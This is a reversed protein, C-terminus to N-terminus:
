LLSQDKTTKNDSQGLMLKAPKMYREDMFKELAARDGGAAVREEIKATLYKVGDGGVETVADTWKYSADAAKKKDFLERVVADTVLKTLPDRTQRKAGTGDGVKRLEGKYLRERAAAATGTLDAVPREGTPKAVATQMPDSACAAEYAAFPELAKKHRVNAQNVSNSVYERVKQKLLELRTEAPIASLDIQIKTVPETGAIDFILLNSNEAAADAAPQTNADSM